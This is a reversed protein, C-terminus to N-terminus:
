QNERTRDNKKIEKKLVYRSKETCTTCNKHVSFCKNICTAYNEPVHNVNESTCTKFM